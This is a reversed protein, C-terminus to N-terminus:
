KILIIKQRLSGVALTYFGERHDSLDIEQIESDVSEEHILIGGADFVKLQIGDPHPVGLAFHGTSPNPYAIMGNPKEPPENTSTYLSCNAAISDTHSSTACDGCFLSKFFCAAKGIRFICQEYTQNYVGHGGHIKLNLETCAGYETLRKSIAETGYMMEFNPCGQFYGSDLPSIIDLDGAFGIMPIANASDIYDIDVISGWNHFLGKLTFTETLSNGSTNTYGLEPGYEPSNCYPWRNYLEQPTIFALDVSAFAGASVGGSFIWATDIRYDDAHHVLYRISAHLDQIGRYIARNASIVTNPTVSQCNTVFNWGTRYEITAAVYGRKSFEICMSDLNTLCGNLYMGGHMLVILPRKRMADYAAGPYYINLFLDQMVGSVNVASGYVVEQQSEIQDSSFYPEETFRNDGTCYQAYGDMFLFLIGTLIVFPKMFLSYVKLILFKSKNGSIGPYV